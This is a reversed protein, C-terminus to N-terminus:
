RTHLTSSDSGPVNWSPSSVVTAQEPDRVGLRAIIEEGGFPGCAVGDCVHVVRPARAETAVMASFTAVGYVEAPPVALRRAVHNLAGASLSGVADCVAHVAPLLSHRRDGATHGAAPFRRDSGRADDPSRHIDFVEEVAAREQPTAEASSRHRDV